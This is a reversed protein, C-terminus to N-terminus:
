KHKRSVRFALGSGTGESDEWLGPLPVPNSHFAPSPFSPSPSSQQPPLWAAPSDPLLTVTTGEQYRNGLMLLASHSKFFVATNGQLNQFRKSNLSLTGDPGKDFVFQSPKTVHSHM